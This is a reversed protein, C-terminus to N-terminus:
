SDPECFCMLFAGRLMMELRCAFTASMTDNQPGGLPWDVAAPRGLDIRNVRFVRPAPDLDLEPPLRTCVGVSPSCGSLELNM